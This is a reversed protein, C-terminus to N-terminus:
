KKVVGDGWFMFINCEGRRYYFFVSRVRESNYSKIGRVCSKYLFPLDM